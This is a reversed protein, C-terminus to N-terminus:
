LNYCFGDFGIKIFALDFVSIRGRDLSQNFFRAFFRSVGAAIEQDHIGGATQM